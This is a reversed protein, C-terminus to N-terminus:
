LNLSKKTKSYEFNAWLVMALLLFVRCWKYTSVIPAAANEMAQRDTSNLVTLIHQVHFAEAVFLVLCGVVGLIISWYVKPNKEVIRTFNLIFNKM